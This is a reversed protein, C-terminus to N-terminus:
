DVVGKEKSGIIFAHTHGEMDYFKIMPTNVESKGNGTKVVCPVFWLEGEQYPNGTVTFENVWQGAAKMERIREWIDPSYLRFFLDLSKLRPIDLEILAKATLRVIELCAQEHSMGDIILGSDPDVMADVEEEVVLADKPMDFIGGPPEENYLILGVNKLALTKKLMEMPAEDRLTAFRIPLKNEPNVWFKQERKQTKIHVAILEKQSNPDTEDYIQVSDTEQAKRVADKFFSRFKIIWDKGREDRRAFHVAKTRKNLGFVGAPSCIKCMNHGIRGLWVHTPKDPDGDFKMWCEFKGQKYFEGAMYVTNVDKIAEITVTTGDDLIATLGLVVAIIVVAATALKMVKSKM